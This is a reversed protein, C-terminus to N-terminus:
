QQPEQVDTAKDEVTKGNVVKKHHHKVQGDKVITKDKVETSTKNMLGKPDTTSKVDVTTEKNGNSDIDVKKTATHETATGAADTNETKEKATFGGNDKATYSSETKADASTDAFAPSAFILASLAALALLSKRMILGISNSHFM